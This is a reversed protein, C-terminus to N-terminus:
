KEIQARHREKLEFARREEKGRAECTGERAAGEGVKLVEALLVSSVRGPNDLVPVNQSDLVEPPLPACLDPIRRSCTSWM